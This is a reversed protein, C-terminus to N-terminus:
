SSYLGVKLKGKSVTLIDRLVDPSSAKLRIVVIKGQEIRNDMQKNTFSGELSRFSEGGILVGNIYVTAGGKKRDPDSVGM